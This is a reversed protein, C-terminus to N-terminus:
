SKEGTYEKKIETQLLFNGGGLVRSKNYSVELIIKLKKM